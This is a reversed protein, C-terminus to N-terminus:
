RAPAGTTDTGSHISRHHQQSDSATPVLCRANGRRALLMRNVRDSRGQDSIIWCIVGLVLVGLFVLAALAPIGLKALAAAPLIGAAARGTLTLASKM